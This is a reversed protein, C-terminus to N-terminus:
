VRRNTTSSPRFETSEFYLTTGVLLYGVVVFIAGVILMRKVTKTTSVMQEQTPAAETPAQAMSGCAPTRTM